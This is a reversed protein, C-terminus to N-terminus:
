DHVAFYPVGGPLASWLPRPLLVTVKNAAIGLMMLEEVNVQEGWQRGDKDLCGNLFSWGKSDSDIRFETPLSALEEVIEPTHAEVRGPHLGVRKVVGEAEIYGTTDEDDTYLCDKLIAHIRAADPM